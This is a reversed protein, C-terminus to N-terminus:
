VLTTVLLFVLQNLALDNPDTCCSQRHLHVRTLKVMDSVRLSVTQDDILVMM